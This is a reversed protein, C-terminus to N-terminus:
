AALNEKIILEVRSTITTLETMTKYKNHWAVLEQLAERVIQSAYEQNALVQDISVYRNLMKGNVSEIKVNHFARVSQENIEIIVHRILEQAQRRRYKKAAVSDDWEFYKHLPNKKDQAENIVYEPSFAGDYKKSIRNLEAAVVEVPLSCRFGPKYQM